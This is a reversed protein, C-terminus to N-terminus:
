ALDGVIGYGIYDVDSFNTGDATVVGFRVSSATPYIHPIIRRWDSGEMGEQTGTATMTSTYNAATFANTFNSTYDGLGNDVMSSVGFSGRLSITGTGNLNLRVKFTTQKHLTVPGTGALNSINNARITSM